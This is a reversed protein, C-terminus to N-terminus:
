IKTWFRKNFSRRFNDRAMTPAHKLFNKNNAGLYEINEQKMEELIKTDDIEVINLNDLTVKDAKLRNKIYELQEHNDSWATPLIWIMASLNWQRDKITNLVDFIETCYAWTAVTSEWTIYVWNLDKYSIQHNDRDIM